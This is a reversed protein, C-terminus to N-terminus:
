SYFETKTDERRTTQGTCSITIVLITHHIAYLLSTSPPRINGLLRAIRIAVTHAICPPRLIFPRHIRACVIRLLSYGTVALPTNLVYVCPGMSKELPTTPQLIGQFSFENIERPIPSKKSKGPAHKGKKPYVRSLTKMWGIRKIRLAPKSGDNPWGRTLGPFCSPPPRSFLGFIPSNEKRPIKCGVVSLMVISLVDTQVM